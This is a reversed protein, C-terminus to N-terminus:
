ARSRAAMATFVGLSLFGILAILPYNSATQPLAPEPRDAQEVVVVAASQQPAPAEAVPAPAPAPEPERVQAVVEPETTKTTEEVAYTDTETKNEEVKATALDEDTNSYTVPPTQKAYTNIETSMSPPYAFEHGFNDGPYFWARLARPQGAPTEWFGFESKGRVRLRYNPIALITTILHKEDESFIQVIHRDSQSDALKFVYKGPELVKKPVQIPQDITIITEKNWADARADPALGTVMLAACSVSALVTAFSKM